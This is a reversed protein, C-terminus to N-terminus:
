RGYYPAPAYPYAYPYPYPYTPYVPQYYGTPLLPPPNTSPAIPATAPRGLPLTPGSPQAGTAPADAKPPVLANAQPKIVAGDIVCGSYVGCDMCGHGPAVYEPFRQSIRCGPHHGLWCKKEECPPPPVAAGGGPAYVPITCYPPTFANFQRGCPGCCCGYHPILGFVGVAHASSPLALPLLLAGVGLLLKKM